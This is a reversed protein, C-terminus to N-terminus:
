FQGNVAQTQARAFQLAAIDASRSVVCHGPRTDFWYHGESQPLLSRHTLWAGCYQDACGQQSAAGEVCRQLVTVFGDQLGQVAHQSVGITGSGCALM